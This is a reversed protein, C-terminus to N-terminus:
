RDLFRKSLDGYADIRRDRLFPWHTRVSDIMDFNCEVILTEEADHSARALLNGSPDSVFSAGWFELDREVGTRNVAAVLLGDGTRSGVATYLQNMSAEFTGLGAPTLPIAGACLSLPGILFTAALTPAVVPLGQGILWIALVLSMHTCCAIAIAAFLYRREHRYADAAGATGDSGLGIVAALAAARIAQHM